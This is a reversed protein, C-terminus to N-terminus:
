DETSSDPSTENDDSSIDKILQNTFAQRTAGLKRIQSQLVFIEFLMFLVVFFGIAGILIALVMNKFLEVDNM